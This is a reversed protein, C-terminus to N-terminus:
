VEIKKINKGLYANKVACYFKYVFPILVLFAFIKEKVNSYLFIYGINKKVISRMTLFIDNRLYTKDKIYLLCHGTAMIGAYTLIRRRIKKNEEIQLMKKYVNYFSISARPMIKVGTIASVSNDHQYYNYYAQPFYVIKRARKLLYFDFLRDECFIFSENFRLSKCDLSFLRKNALKNYSYGWFRRNEFSNLIAINSDMIVVDSCKKKINVTMNEDFVFRVDCVSIDAQQEKANKYLIEFMEPDCWDDSDVFGIWEGLAIDLGANRAASVGANKQHIVIIRSDKVAYEDCIAPCNDPSGDNILICEFNTFTQALISDICRRLYLEVNYVPVIISIEPAIKSYSMSKLYFDKSHIASPMSGWVIAEDL